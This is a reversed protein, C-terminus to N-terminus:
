AVRGHKNQDSGGGPLPPGPPALPPLSSGGGSSGPVVYPQAVLVQHHAAMPQIITTVHHAAPHPPAVFPFAIGPVGGAILGGGNMLQVSRSNRLNQYVSKPSPAPASAISSPASLLTGVAGAANFVFKVLAVVAAVAVWLLLAAILVSKFNAGSAALGAVGTALITLMVFKSLIIVVLLAIFRKAWVAAGPFVMAAMAVPTFIAVGYVAVERLLLVLLLVIGGLIIAGATILTMVVSGLLTGDQGFALVINNTFATFDGVLNPTMTATAADTIQIMQNTLMVAIFTGIMAIPAYVLGAKIAISWDGKLASQICAVLIAPCMLMVAITFMLNYHSIFWGQSLNPSTNSGIFSGVQTLMCGVSNSALSRIWAGPNFPNFAGPDSCAAVLRSSPAPALVRALIVGGLALTIRRALNIPPIKM